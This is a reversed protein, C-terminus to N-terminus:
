KYSNYSSIEKLTKRVKKRPERKEAPYGVTIMLPIKRTLPIGLLRKVKFASFWGVICTALGLETAQLCFHEVAISTDMINYKKGKILGGIKSSLNPPEAVAVVIVPAYKVFTNLKAVPSAAYRALKELKTRDDVVIFHWPQANCASPALRAAEICQEIKKREVTTDAYRRISEREVVLEKFSM